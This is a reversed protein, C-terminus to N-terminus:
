TMALSQWLNKPDDIAPILEISQGIDFQNALEYVYKLVTYDELAFGVSDFLTIEVDDERGPKQQSALEWLEAYISQGSLHQIEGEVKTQALYEVVIKSSDVTTQDLETKGPCDGGVGNIHQGLELWDYELVNAHQKYATATTVIDANHVATKANSCPALEIDCDRMNNEFKSMAAPDLDFFQIRDIDFVSMHARAQFESQSGTGIMCLTNTNAKALFTSALASTAATRFATLVTMESIMLPYGSEVDALMGTAVVTLKNRKPNDPHGNVLKFTYYDKGCIPMLEIVGHEFHTAHRPTKQFDHWHAYDNKLRAILTKFFDDVGVREILARVDQLTILKM